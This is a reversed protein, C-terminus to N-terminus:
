ERQNNISDKKNIYDPGYIHLPNIEIEKRENRVDVDSYYVWIGNELALGNFALDPAYFEPKGEFQPKMPVLQNFVIMNLQSDYRLTLSAKSSYEFIIRHAFSNGRRFIPAGFQFEGSPLVKITEIIKKTSLLDNEDFGLLIVQQKGFVSKEILDYYVAGYWNEPFCAQMIPNEIEWSKNKLEIVKVPVTDNPKYQILGGYEHVNNNIPTSWTFIVFKSKEASLRSIYKLSDFTYRFSSDILLIEKLTKNIKNHINLKEDSSKAIQLSDFLSTVYIQTDILKNQAHTSLFSAIIILLILHRKIM